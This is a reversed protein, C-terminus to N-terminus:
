AAPWGYTALPTGLQLPQSFGLWRVASPADRFLEVHWLVNEAFVEWMRAAGFVHDQSAAIALSAGQSHQSIAVTVDALDRLDQTSASFREANTFDVLFGRIPATAALQRVERAAAIAESGAVMGTATYIVVTPNSLLHVTSPM